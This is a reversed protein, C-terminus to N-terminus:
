ESPTSKIQDLRDSILSKSIVIIFKQADFNTNLSGEVTIILKQFNEV